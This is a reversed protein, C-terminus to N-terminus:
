VNKDKLNRIDLFIGNTSNEFVAVYDMKKLFSYIEDANNNIEILILTPRYKDWDNGQLVDLEFGEVDVSLFDVKSEKVYEDFINQLTQMPIDITEIIEENHIKCNREADIKNFSSLTDASVLYFPFKGCSIGLGLNLNIDRPRQGVLRKFLTPNPEINVGSWGRDYFRKTNSFIAPDNAGIDIFFGTKKNGLIADIVLDEGYQSYSQILENKIVAVNKIPTHNRKFIGFLRNFYPLDTLRLKYGKMYALLQPIIM